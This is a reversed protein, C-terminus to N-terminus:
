WRGWRLWDWLATIHASILAVVPVNFGFDLFCLWAVILVVAALYSSASGTM